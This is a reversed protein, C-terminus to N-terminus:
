KVEVDLSEKDYDVGVLLDIFYFMDVKRGDVDQPNKRIYAILARRTIIWQFSRGSGRKEARIIGKDIRRTLWLTSHGFIECVETGNYWGDKGRRSVGLKQLRNKISNPSRRLRTAITLVALKNSLKILRDTEEETWPRGRNRGKGIGLRKILYFVSSLPISLHTGIDRASKVTGLYDTRVYELQEDTYKRNPM